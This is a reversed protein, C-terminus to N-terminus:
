LYGIPFNLICGTPMITKAAIMAVSPINHLRLRNYTEMPKKTVHNNAVM